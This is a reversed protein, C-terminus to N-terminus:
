ALPMTYRIPIRMIGVAKEKLGQDALTESTTTSGAIQRDENRFTQMEINCSQTNGM